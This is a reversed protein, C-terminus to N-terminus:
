INKNYQYFQSLKDLLAKGEHLDKTMGGLQRKETELSLGLTKINRVYETSFSTTLVCNIFLIILFIKTEMYEKKKM